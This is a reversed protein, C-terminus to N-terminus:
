SLKKLLDELTIDLNSLALPINWSERDRPEVYNSVARLQFCDVYEQMCCYMFAAGEMSEVQPNLREVTHAISTLSGHVKNVTIGSVNRISTDFRYESGKLKMEDYPYESPSALKLEALDLFDDHDEAGLEAFMDHYVNVVEGIAISGDFSGCIGANIALDYKASLLQRTLHYTTHVMGVGTILWTLSNGGTLNVPASPILDYRKALLQAEFSTATVLLIDM